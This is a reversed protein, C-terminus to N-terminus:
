FFESYLLGSLRDVNSSLIPHGVFFWGKTGSIITFLTTKQPVGQLVSLYQGDGVM